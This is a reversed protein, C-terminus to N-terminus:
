FEDLHNMTYINELYRTRQAELEETSSLNPKNIQGIKMMIMMVKIQNM